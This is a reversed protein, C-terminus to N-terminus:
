YLFPVLRRVHNRYQVYQDGFQHVMLREEVDLKIRFAIAIIPVALFSRLLGAQLATGLIMALIGTYIPHRVIRYPGRLILEHGQRITPNASWSSGLIFRAWIAFAAGAITLFLGTLAVPVTPIFLPQNLIGPLPIISSPAFILYLGCIYVLRQLINASSRATSHATPKVFPLSGIWVAVIAWWVYIVWHHIHDVTILHPM